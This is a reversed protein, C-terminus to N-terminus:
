VDKQLGTKGAEVAIIEIKIFLYRSVSETKNEMRLTKEFLM